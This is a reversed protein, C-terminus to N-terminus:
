EKKHKGEIMEKCVYNLEKLAQHTNLYRVAYKSHTHINLLEIWRQIFFVQNSNFDGYQLIDRDNLHREM